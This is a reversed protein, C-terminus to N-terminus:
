PEPSHVNAARHLEQDDDMPLAWWLKQGTEPAYPATDPTKRTTRPAPYM